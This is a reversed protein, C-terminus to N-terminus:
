EAVSKLLGNRKKENELWNPDDNIIWECSCKDCLAWFARNAPVGCAICFRTGLRELLDKETM